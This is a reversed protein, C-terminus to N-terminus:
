ERAESFGKVALRRRQADNSLIRRKGLKERLVQNEAQLYEIVRQQERNVHPALSLVILHWPKLVLALMRLRYEKMSLFSIIEVTGLPTLRRFGSFCPKPLDM